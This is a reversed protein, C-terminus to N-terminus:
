NAGGGGRPGVPTALLRYTRIAFPGDPFPGYGAVDPRADLARTVSRYRESGYFREHVVLYTIGWNRLDSLAEDSPFGDMRTLLRNYSDPYMGSYGNAIPHWHFTSFYDYEADHFPLLRGVPMPMEAVPGPPQQRLWDYAPSPRTEVAVLPLPLMLYECVALGALSAVVLGVRRRSRAQWWAALRAVGFGALVGISMLVLQGLRAPVRLGRYLMVHERLWGFLLGRFGFSIDLAVILAVAYALRTRDFPPWLAFAALFIAVIGPFLRKEHRGIGGTLHGYLRNEPVVALYHKPGAAYLVAEGPKRDGTEARAAQYPLVYPLLVIAALVAGLVLGLVARRKLQSLRGVVLVPVILVLVTAFFVTYYICSLGQAAVFVGTWLGDRVRGSRLVQHLKWLALPMWPAWLLELHFYHDFRYPAFAFIIGGLIGADARGTLERVLLFMATGCLVFSGLVLLNYAVVVPVGIWLLPTVILSQLLIADSFALTYRSPYFINAHFLQLPDRPLQHAIWALRWMNFYSDVNQPVSAPHVVQPWTILATLLAFLLTATWASQRWRWRTSAPAPPACAASQQEQLDTNM